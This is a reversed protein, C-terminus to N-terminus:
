IQVPVSQPPLQSGGVTEGDYQDNSAHVVSKTSAYRYCSQEARTVALVYTGSAAPKDDLRSKGDYTNLFLLSWPRILERLSDPARLSGLLALALISM